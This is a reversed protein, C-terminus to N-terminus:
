GWRSHYQNTCGQEHVVWSSGHVRTSRQLPTIRLAREFLRRRRAQVAKGEESKRQRSGDTSDSTEHASWLLWAFDSTTTHQETPLRSRPGGTHCLLHARDHVSPVGHSCASVFITLEEEVEVDKDVDLEVSPVAAGPVEEAETEVEMVVTEGVELLTSETVVRGDCFSVVVMTVGVIELAVGFVVVITLVFPDTGPM